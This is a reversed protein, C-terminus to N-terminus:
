SESRQTERNRTLDRDLRTGTRSVRGPHGGAEDRAPETSAGSGERGSTFRRRPAHTSATASRFSGRSSARSRRVSPCSCSRASGATRWETGTTPRPGSTSSGSAWTPATARRRGSSSPDTTSERHFALAAQFEVASAPRDGVTVVANWQPDAFQWRETDRLFAEVVMHGAGGFSTEIDRPMLNLTRAPIGLANLCAGLVVSYEVCRFRGGAKAEEVISIPDERKPRGDSAHKWLGHVRDCVARVRDLDTACERVVADLDLEARLRKLYPEDAESFRLRPVEWTAVALFRLAPLSGFRRTEFGPPAELSFTGPGIRPTTQLDSIEM